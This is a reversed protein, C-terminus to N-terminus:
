KVIVLDSTVFNNKTNKWISGPSSGKHIMGPLLSIRFFSVFYHCFDNDEM